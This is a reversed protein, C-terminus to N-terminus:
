KRNISFTATRYRFSARLLHQFPKLVDVFSCCLFIAARYNDLKVPLNILYRLIPVQRWDEVSSEAFTRPYRLARWQLTPRRGQRSGSWALTDDNIMAGVATSSWCGLFRFTQTLFSVPVPRFYVPLFPFLLWGGFWLHLCCLLLVTYNCSSRINHSPGLHFM